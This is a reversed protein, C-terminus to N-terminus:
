SPAPATVEASGLATTDASMASLTSLTEMVPGAVEARELYTTAGHAWWMRSDFQQPTPTVGRGNPRVLDALARRPVVVDDNDWFDLWRDVCGPTAPPRPRLRPWVFGSTAIPSGITVLLPVPGEYSALAEFAVVSGLSHGVVVAPREPDLCDLVRAQIRADLTRGETDENGRRLYRAPQSWTRLADAATAWRAAQAVGPVAAVATMVAAIHRGVAGAGQPQGGPLVQARVRALARNGQNEPRAAEEDLFEALLGLVIAAEEEDLADPADAGQSEGDTFLDGYYAYSCDAMWDMTLASIESAFGAARAGGALARRWAGLEQEPDRPHGIGHVFILQPKPMKSM